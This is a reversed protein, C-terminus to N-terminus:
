NGSNEGFFFKGRNKVSLEIKSKSLEYLIPLVNQEVLFVFKRLKM